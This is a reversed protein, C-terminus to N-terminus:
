FSPSCSKGDSTLEADTPSALSLDILHLDERGDDNHLCYVVKSTDPSVAVRYIATGAPAPILLSVTDATLDYALLSPRWDTEVTGGIFLFGSGDSFWSPKALFIDM